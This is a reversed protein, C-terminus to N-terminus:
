AQAAGPGQPAQAAAGPGQPAQAAGAGEPAEAGWPLGIAAADQARFRTSRQCKATEEPSSAFPFIVAMRNRTVPFIHDTIDLSFFEWDEEENSPVLDGDGVTSTSWLLVEATPGLMMQLAMLGASPALPFFKQLLKEDLLVVREFLRADAEGANRRLVRNRTQKAVQALANRAFFDDYDTYHEAEFEGDYPFYFLEKVKHPPEVRVGFNPVGPAVTPNQVTGEIYVCPTGRRNQRLVIGLFILM